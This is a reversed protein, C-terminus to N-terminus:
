PEVQESDTRQGNNQYEDSLLKRSDCIPDDLTFMDFVLSLAYMRNDYGLIMPGRLYSLDFKTLKPYEEEANTQNSWIESM